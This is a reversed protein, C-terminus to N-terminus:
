YYNATYFSADGSIYCEIGIIIDVLKVVINLKNFINNNNILRIASYFQSTIIYSYYLGNKIVAM